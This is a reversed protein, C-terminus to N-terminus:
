FLECTFSSISLAHVLVSKLLFNVSCYLSSCLMTDFLLLAGGNPMQTALLRPCYPMFM